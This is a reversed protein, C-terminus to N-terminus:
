RLRKPRGSVIALVRLPLRRYRQGGPPPRMAREVDTLNVPSAARLARRKEFSRVVLTETIGEGGDLAQGMATLQRVVDVQHDNVHEGLAARRALTVPVHGYEVATALAGVGGHCVVVDAEAVHCDFDSRSLQRVIRLGRPKVESSAVQCTGEISLTSSAMLADVAALLWDFPQFAGGTTVFIRM